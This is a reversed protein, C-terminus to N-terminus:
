KVRARRQEMTNEHRVGGFGREGQLFDNAAETLAVANGGEVFVDGLEASHGAAFVGGGRVEGEDDHAIGGDGGADEGHGIGGGIALAGGDFGDGGGDDEEAEVADLLEGEAEGEEVLVGAVDAVLFEIAEEDAGVAGAVEGHVHGFGEVIFGGLLEKDATEEALEGAENEGVAEGVEIALHVLKDEGAFAVEILGAFLDEADAEVFDCLGDGFVPVEAVGFGGRGGAGIGFGALAGDLEGDFDGVHEEAVFGGAGFEDAGNALADGVEEAGFGKRKGIEDTGGGDVVGVHLVEEVQGLLVQDHHGANGFPSFDAGGVDGVAEGGAEVFAGGLGLDLGVFGEDHGVEEGFEHEGDALAIGEVVDEHDGLFADVAADMGAADDGGEDVAFALDELAADIGAFCGADGGVAAADGEGGGVFQGGLIELGAVGDDGLDAGLGNKVVIGEQGFEANIGDKQDGDEGAVAGDALVQEAAGGGLGGEGGVVAEPHGGDGAM